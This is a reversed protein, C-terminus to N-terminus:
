VVLLYNGTKKIFDLINLIYHLLLFSLISYKDRIRKYHIPISEFSSYNNIAFVFLFVDAQKYYEEREYQQPANTSITEGSILILRKFYLYM